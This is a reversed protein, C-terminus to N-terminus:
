LAFNEYRLHDLYLPNARKIDIYVETGKNVKTDCINEFQKKTLLVTFTIMKLCVPVHLRLLSKFYNNM